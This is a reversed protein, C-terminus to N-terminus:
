QSYMRKMQSSKSVYIWAEDLPGNVQTFLVFHEGLKTDVLIKGTDKDKVVLRM